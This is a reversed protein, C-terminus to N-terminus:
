TTIGGLDIAAAVPDDARTIARGIVLYDAGATLAQAPTTVQKQDDAMRWAPRIGPVVVTLSPAAARASSIAPPPCVVGEAGWEAALASMEFVQDSISRGVGARGLDAEDLSTLVTVVLVGTDSGASEVAAEVMARGGGSHVTIWRSGRAALGGAAGAVTNPIDHLKADAFVPAGLEAIAPIADPGAGVLLELGVKFGGVHPALLTAMRHAQGLDPYDLAVLIPSVM